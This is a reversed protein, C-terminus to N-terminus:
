LRVVGGEIVAYDGVEIARCRHLLARMEDTFDPDRDTGQAWITDPDIDLRRVLNLIVAVDRTTFTSARSKRHNTILIVVTFLALLSGLTISWGVLLYKVYEMM